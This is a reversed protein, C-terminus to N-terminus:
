NFSLLFVFSFFLKCYVGGDSSGSYIYKQGTNHLPSIKARVLTSSVTHGSYTVLSCDDEIMYKGGEFNYFYKHNILPKRKKFFFFIFHTGPYPHKAYRYDTRIRAAKANPTCMKRM